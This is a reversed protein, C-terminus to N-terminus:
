GVSILAPLPPPPASPVAQLQGPLPEKLGGAQSMKTDAAPPWLHSEVGKQHLRGEKEPFAPLARTGEQPRLTGGRIIGRASLQSDRSSSLGRESQNARSEPALRAQVRVGKCAHVCMRGLLRRTRRRGKGRGNVLLEGQLSWVRAGKRGQRLGSADGPTPTEVEASSIHPASGANTTPVTGPCRPIPLPTGPRWMGSAPMDHCCLMHGSTAAHGRCLLGVGWRSCDGQPIKNFTHLVLQSCLRPGPPRTHALTIRFSMDYPEDRM